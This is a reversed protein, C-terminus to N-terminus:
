QSFAYVRGDLGTLFVLGDGVAPSGPFGFAGTSPAEAAYRWVVRGTARDLAMAGARHGAPYGVQSSSGVYVRTDSVAPQGWSWGFVDAAWVRRGTAVEFASVLASESSGVYAVGDRVTASSEIWSFWLYTKWVVEGSKADLGLLDFARNGVVIRDGAVAPTSVIAGETARKWVLSGKSADLAYVNKDFSGFYVRGSVVAPAALIGDGSAFEWITKGSSPDVALVRGDHTGLYLRGGAVTVDSAFREFRSKPNDNPLREIPKEVVRVRWQEKGSAASLKYLFGDDARVYVAGESVTPRSRIAGGAGARFSWREKGTKADLARVQGDNGGFYVVGSSFTPGAWLPSGADFTWVPQVPTGGPEPRPPVDVREVRHLVLPIKYVPVLGAPVVGSLTRARADYTFAFPGLHVEGGELKLEVAGFPVQTFHISPVTAKIAVKGDKAPELELAFSTEQGDHSITGSWAGALEAATPGAPAAAQEQGGAKGPRAGVGVLLVALVAANVAM